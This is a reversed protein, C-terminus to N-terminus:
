PSRTFLLYGATLYLFMLSLDPRSHSEIFQGGLKLLSQGIGLANCEGVVTAEDLRRMQQQGHDLFRIAPDTRQELTGPDIHGRQSAFGLRQHLAQRLHLAGTAFHLGRAIQAVQEVEAILFGGLSAVLENGRLEKQEGKTIVLAFGATQAAIVPEVTFRQLQGNLGHTATLANIRGIGFALTFGELFVTQIQGLAGAQALQIRDDAAIVFDTTGDLDQM